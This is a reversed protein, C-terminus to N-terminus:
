HTPLCPSAGRKHLLVDAVSPHSTVPIGYRNGDTDLRAKMAVNAALFLVSLLLHALTMQAAM